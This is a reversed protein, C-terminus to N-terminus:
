DGGAVDYGSTSSEDRGSPPGGGKFLQFLCWLVLAGAPIIWWISSMGMEVLSGGAGAHRSDLPLQDLSCILAPRSHGSNPQHTSLPREATKLGISPM